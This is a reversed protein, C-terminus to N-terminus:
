RLQVDGVEVKVEVEVELEVLSSIAVVKAVAQKRIAMDSPPCILGRDM